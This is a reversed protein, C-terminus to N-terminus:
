RTRGGQPRILRLPPREPNCLFDLALWFSRAHRFFLVPLLISGTIALPLLTSLDLGFCADLSLATGLVALSTLGYNVYIAGVFYGPEREFRVGCVECRSLM